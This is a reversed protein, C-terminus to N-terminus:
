PYQPPLQNYNPPQQQQYQSNPQQLYQSPPKQFPYPAQSSSPKYQSPAPYGKINSRDPSYLNNLNGEPPNQGIPLPAQLNNYNPIYQSPQQPQQPDQNSYNQPVSVPATIPIPPQPTTSSAPAYNVTVVVPEEDKQPVEYKM